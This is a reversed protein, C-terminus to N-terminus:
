LQLEIIQSAAQAVQQDHSAVLVAGGDAACALLAAIVVAAHDPDQHSTPEDALVVAPAAIVARAVAARQQQGMSVEAPFRDALASLDLRELFTDALSRRDRRSRGTAAVGLNESLTLEPVLALVQPVVAVHNWSTRALAAPSVDHGDIRVTGADPPCWGAVVALLTSKGSGSRGRVVALEGAAIEFSVPRLGCESAWWKAVGDVGLRAPRTSGPM